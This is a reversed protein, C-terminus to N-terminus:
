FDNRDIFRQLKMQQLEVDIGATVSNRLLFQQYTDTM